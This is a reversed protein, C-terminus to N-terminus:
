APRVRLVLAFGLTSVDVPTTTSIPIIFRLGLTDGASFASELNSILRVDSVDGAAANTATKAEPDHGWLKTAVLIKSSTVATIQYVGPNSPTAGAAVAAVSTISVYDGVNPTTVFDVASTLTMVAGSVAITLTQASTLLASSAGTPLLAPVGATLGTVFDHDKSLNAPTNNYRRVAVLYKDGVNNGASWTASPVLSASVIRGAYPATWAIFDKTVAAGSPAAVAFPVTIYQDRFDNALLQGNDLMTGLVIDSEGAGLQGRPKLAPQTQAFENLAAIQRTTLAM